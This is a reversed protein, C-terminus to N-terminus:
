INKCFLRMKQKMLTSLLFICLSGYEKKDNLNDHLSRRNLKDFSEITPQDTEYQKKYRQCKQLVIVIIVKKGNQLGGATATKIPIALFRM